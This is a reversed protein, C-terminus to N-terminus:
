KEEEVGKTKKNHAMAFAMFNNVSKMTNNEEEQAQKAEEDFLTPYVDYISPYNAKDDLIRGVSYAILDAMTYDFQAKQRMRWIYGELYREVEAKTM